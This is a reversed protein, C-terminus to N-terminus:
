ETGTSLRLHFSTSKQTHADGLTETPV